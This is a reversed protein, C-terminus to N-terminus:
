ESIYELGERTTDLLPLEWIDLSLVERFFTKKDQASAQQWQPGTAKLSNQLLVSRLNEDLSRKFDDVLPSLSLRLRKKYAPSNEGSATLQAGGGSPGTDQVKERAIFVRWPNMRIGYYKVRTNETIDWNGVAAIGESLTKFGPRFGAIDSFDWRISYDLRVSSDRHDKAFTLILPKVPQQPRVVATSVQAGEQAHVPSSYPFACFCLSMFCCLPLLPLRCQFVHLAINEWAETSRAKIGNHRQSKIM